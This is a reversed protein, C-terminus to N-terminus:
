LRNIESSKLIIIVYDSMVYYNEIVNGGKERTQMEGGRKEREEKQEITIISLPM